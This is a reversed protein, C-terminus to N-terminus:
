VLDGESDSKEEEIKAKKSPTEEVDDENGGEEWDAAAKKAKRKSGSAAAAKEGAAKKGGGSRKVPTKSRGDGPVDGFQNAAQKKLGKTFKQRIGEATYEDGMLSAVTNWNISPTSAGMVHIIAMLLKKETEDDWKVPM